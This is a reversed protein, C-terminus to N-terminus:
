QWCTEASVAYYDFPNLAALGTLGKETVTNKAYNVLFLFVNADYVDSMIDNALEYRANTDTEYMMAAIKADTEANAFGAIDQYCGTKLAGDIFAFPDGGKDTIMCYFCVQYDGTSMYTSDPDENLKFEAKIGFATLQEQILVAMTDINRAAYCDLVITLPAGDKTWVGDVLAYGDAKLAAAAADLNKEPNSGKGYPASPMYASYSPTVLGPLFAAIAERDIVQAIAARVNDSLRDKNMIMYTRRNTATNYLEYRDPEMGFIEIDTSSINDYGNIEGNQMAMLKAQEDAIAYWAVKELQVDGGWYNENAVTVLDGEPQFSEIKFPGTSIPALDFDTTNDLDLFCVEPTALDNIMTPYETPTTIVLTKEDPCEFTWEGMYAFRPNQGMLREINRVIMETTLPNGNSFCVGDKLVVTSVNGEVTLSEALWPSISMDDNIRFLTETIGYKQTHWSYYDKHPDQSAYAFPEVTYYSTPLDKVEETSSSSDDPTSDPTTTDSSKGCAVLSLVMVLTLLLAFFKKM